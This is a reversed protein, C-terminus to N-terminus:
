DWVATCDSRQGGGCCLELVAVATLQQIVHMHQNTSVKGAAWVMRVMGGSWCLMPRHTTRSPRACATQSSVSARPTRLSPCLATATSAMARLARHGAAAAAAAVALRGASTNVDWKSSVIVHCRGGVPAGFLCSCSQGVSLNIATLVAPAAQWVVWCGYHWAAAATAACVKIMELHTVRFESAQPDLMTAM